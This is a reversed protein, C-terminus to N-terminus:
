VERSALEEETVGVLSEMDDDIKPMSIGTFGYFMSILPAALNFFAYPLYTFAGVGLVTSMYAGCTNWPILPSTVTASAELARSLNKPHINRKLFASRYMRGPVIIALYQDSALINMGFCSFTTVAVLSGASRAFSLVARALRELMGAAEMVGGFALAVIILAITDLMSTLGGRTLLDDVIAVGTVGVYGTYLSDVLRDMNGHFGLVPDWQFLVMLIAGVIVGIILSPLAPMQKWVLFLVVAPAVFLLPNLNFAESLTSLMLLYDPTEVMGAGPRVIGIVTFITLALILAPVTTYLMHRIHTFLQTGAVAPALNTTDSLPSMKDGFYAGSIVAGATMGPPMGLAQGVGMMALGVTAATSWSSGTAVSIVACIICTAVLFYGPALIKLGYFIMIPVVGSVIWVGILLGVVILILIAPLATVIVGTLGEQIREWPMDLVKGAIVAAVIASLILPIHGSGDLIVISYFLSAILVVVPILSMGLSPNPKKVGSM